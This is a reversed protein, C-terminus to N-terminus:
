RACLYRPDSSDHPTIAINPHCLPSAEPLPETATVDLAAFAPKGRDLGAILAAEDVLAGRGLNMFM